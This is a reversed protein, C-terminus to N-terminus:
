GSALWDGGTIRQSEDTPGTWAWLWTEVSSHDPLRVELKVRLYEDGEFADLENLIERSVEFVEGHVSSASDDPILGPYWDIRYLRGNVQATSLFGADKMRHHNSGGRRLTGYVFIRETAQGSM